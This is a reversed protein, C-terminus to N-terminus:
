NSLQHFQPIVVQLGMLGFGMATVKPGNKGLQRTPLPDIGVAKKLTDM